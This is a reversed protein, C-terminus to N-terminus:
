LRGPRACRAFMANMRPLRGRAKISAWEETPIGVSDQGDLAMSGGLATAGPYERDAHSPLAPAIADDHLM